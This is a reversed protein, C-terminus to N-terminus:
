LKHKKDTNVQSIRAGKKNAGESRQAKKQLLFLHGIKDKFHMLISM